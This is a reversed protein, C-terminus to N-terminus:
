RLSEGNCFRWINVTMYNVDAVLVNLSRKVIFFALTLCFFTLYTITKWDFGLCFQHNLLKKKKHSCRKKNTQIRKM